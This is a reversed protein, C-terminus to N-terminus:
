RVRIAHGYCVISPERSRPRFFHGQDLCSVNILGNAGLRLAETQLSAIAVSESSASPVWLASRWSDVWLYSVHQYQNQLLQDAGYIKVETGQIEGGTKPVGACGSLASLVLAVFLPFRAPAAIKRKMMTQANCREIGYGAAYLNEISVM